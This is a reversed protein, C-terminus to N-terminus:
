IQPDIRIIIALHNAERNRRQILFPPPFHDLGDMLLQIFMLHRDAVNATVGVVLQAIALLLFLNGLVLQLAAGVAQLLEGIAEDLLHILDPFGLLALNHLDSKALSCPSKVKDCPFSFVCACVTAVDCVTELGFAGTRWRAMMMSPLPRQAVM